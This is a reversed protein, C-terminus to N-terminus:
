TANNRDFSISEAYLAQFFRSYAAIDQSRFVIRAGTNKRDKRDGLWLIAILNDFIGFGDELTKWVPDQQKVRQAEAWYIYRVSAGAESQERWATEWEAREAEDEIIFVKQITVQRYHHKARQLDVAAKGWRKDYVFERRTWNTAIYRERMGSLLDHWVENVDSIPVTHTAFRLVNLHRNGVDLADGLRAAIEDSRRKITEVREEVKHVRIITEILLVLMLAVITVNFDYSAEKTGNARLVLFTWPIVVVLSILSERSFGLFRM